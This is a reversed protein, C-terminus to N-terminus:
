RALAADQRRELWQVFQAIPLSLAFYILAILSYTELPRYAETAISKGVYMLDGVAVIAVLASQQLISIGNTMLVPIASRLAQPLIVYLTRQWPRLGLAVCADLHERPVAQVGARYAEANFATLNLGLALVGMTIPDIFVDFLMPVCYFFWVIQLLVPTCRFFEIFLQAPWRLFFWRSLTLLCLGFGLVLGVINSVLALQLTVKLGDWLLGFNGNLFSFDFQYNM